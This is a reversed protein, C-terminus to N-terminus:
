YYLILKLIKSGVLIGKKGRVKVNRNGLYDLINKTKDSCGKAITRMYKVEKRKNPSNSDKNVWVYRSVLRRSEGSKWDRGGM